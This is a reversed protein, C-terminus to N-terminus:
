THLKFSLVSDRINWLFHTQAMQTSSKMRINNDRIKKMCPIYQEFSAPTCKQSVNKHETSM